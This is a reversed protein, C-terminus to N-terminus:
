RLDGLSESPWPRVGGALPLLSSKGVSFHAIFCPLLGISKNHSCLINIRFSKCASQNLDYWGM